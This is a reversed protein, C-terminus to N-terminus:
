PSFAPRYANFAARVVEYVTKYLKNRDLEPFEIYREVIHKSSSMHGDYGKFMARVVGWWKNYVRPHTIRQLKVMVMIHEAIGFNTGMLVGVDMAGSEAAMVVSTAANAALQKVKDPPEAKAQVMRTAVDEVAKKGGVTIGHINYRDALAKYRTVEGSTKVKLLVQGRETSIRVEEAPAKRQQTQVMYGVDLNQQQTEEQPKAGRTATRKKMSTAM